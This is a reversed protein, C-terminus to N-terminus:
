KIIVILLDLDSDGVTEFSNLHAQQLSWLLSRCQAVDYTVIM